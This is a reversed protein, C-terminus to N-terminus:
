RLLAHRIVLGRGDLARGQNRVAPRGDHATGAAVGHLVEAGNWCKSHPRFLEHEAARGAFPDIRPFDPPRRLPAKTPVGDKFSGSASRPTIKGSDSIEHTDMETALEMKFKRLRRRHDQRQVHVERADGFQLTRIIQYRVRRNGNGAVAVAKAIPAVTKNRGASM